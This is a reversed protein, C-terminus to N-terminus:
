RYVFALRFLALQPWVHDLTAYPHQSPWPHQGRPRPHVNSVFEMGEKNMGDPTYEQMTDARARIITQLRDAIFKTGAVSQKELHRTLKELDKELRPAISPTLLFTAHLHPHLALLNVVLHLLPRIHGMAAPVLVLHKTDATTTM